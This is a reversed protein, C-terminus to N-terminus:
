HANCTKGKYQSQRVVVFRLNFDFFFSFSVPVYNLNVHGIEVAIQRKFHSAEEVPQVSVAEFNIKKEFHVIVAVDVNAIEGM